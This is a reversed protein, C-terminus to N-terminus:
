LSGLFAKYDDWLMKSKMEKLFHMRRKECFDDINEIYREVDQLYAALNETLSMEDRSLL